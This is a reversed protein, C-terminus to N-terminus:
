QVRAAEGSLISGDQGAAEGSLISGDQGAAEGSLISGDQGAAEGSLISGDQGAERLIGQMWLPIACHSRERLFRQDQEM